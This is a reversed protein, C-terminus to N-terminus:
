KLPLHIEFTTNSSENQYFLKGGHKEIITSSISLGLGTGENPNKTTFFPQMIKDQIDAPIGKGSDTFKIIVQNNDIFCDIRIWKEELNKIASFANNFLNLFVQSFQTESCYVPLNEPNINIEIKIACNNFKEQCFTLTKTVIDRLIKYELKDRSGDRSFSQLGQVIKSIRGVTLDIQPLLQLMLEQINEDQRKAANLLIKSYGNIIALPNNIEHAVGSAMEGLSALKSSSILNTRQQEIQIRDKESRIMIGVISCASRLFLVEKNDLSFENKIVFSFVGEVYEEYKIPFIYKSRLISGQPTVKDCRCDADTPQIEIGTQAVKGCHGEGVPITDCYIGQDEEPTENSRIHSAVKKLTNNKEIVFIVGRLVNEMWYVNLIIKLAEAVKQDLKLNMTQVRLLEKLTKERMYQNFLNQQMIEMDKESEIRSSIDNSTIQIAYLENKNTFIPSYSSEFWFGTQETPKIFDKTIIENKNIVIEETRKKIEDAFQPFLEYITKDELKEPTSNVARAATKNILLIKGDSPSYYTISIKAREILSKFIDNLPWLNKNEIFEKM